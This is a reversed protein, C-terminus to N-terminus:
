KVKEKNDISFIQVLLLLCGGMCEIYLSQTSYNGMMLLFLLISFILYQNEKVKKGFSFICSMFWALFPIGGLFGYHVLYAIFLNHSNYGTRAYNNFGTFRIWKVKEFFISVRTSALVDLSYLFTGPEFICDEVPGDATTMRLVHEWFYNLNSVDLKGKELMSYMLKSAGFLGVPILLIVFFAIAFRIYTVKMGKGHMFVWISVIALFVGLEVTRSGFMLVAIAPYVALLLCSIMGLYSKKKKFVLFMYICSILAVSCSAGASGINRFSGLYRIGAYRDPDNILSFTFCKAFAFYSSISFLYTLETREEDDFRTLIWAFIPCVFPVINDPDTIAVVIAFFVYCIIVPNKIYTKFPYPKHRFLDLMLGIFCIWIIWEYVVFEFYVPGYSEPTIGKVIFCIGMILASIGTYIWAKIDKLNIGRYIALIICLYMLSKYLELEIFLQWEKETIYFLHMFMRLSLLTLITIRIIKKWGYQKLKEVM